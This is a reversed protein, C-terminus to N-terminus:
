RTEKAYAEYAEAIKATKADGRHFVFRHRLKLREGAALETPKSSLTKDLSKSGFPNATFLGYTRVHWNTPHRFSAPHDFFAIGLQEGEVPGTYECWDAPKSWAAADELGNSNVIHGGQKSDVAMSTPVRISLGADKVDDFKVPGDSAILDQDFDIVRTEGIVRFTMRREESLMRKGQPDLYDCIEAIVAHDGDAKVEAYERHKISGLMALHKKGAAETKPKKLMEEYSAKEAWTEVGENIREHGFCIGRHHPHDHTEGEVTQMPYARTMAKGTPGYIPWLYPKNAQDVVYSAFPKGNVKVEVGGSRTREVTFASDAASLASTTLLLAALAIFIRTNMPVSRGCKEASTFLRAKLNSQGDRQLFTFLTFGIRDAGAHRGHGRRPLAARTSVVKAVITMAAGGRIPPAPRNLADAGIGLRAGSDSRPAAIVVKTVDM